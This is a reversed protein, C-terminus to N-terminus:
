TTNVTAAAMTDSALIGRIDKNKDGQSLGETTPDSAQLEKLQLQKNKYLFRLSM